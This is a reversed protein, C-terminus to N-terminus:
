GGLGLLQLKLLADAYQQAVQNRAAMYENEAMSRAAQQTSAGLGYFDARAADMVQALRTNFTGQAGALAEADANYAGVDGQLGSVDVGQARLDGEIPNAYASLGGVIQRGLQALQAQYARSQAANQDFATRVGGQYQSAYRDIAPLAAGRLASLEGFQRDRMATTERIAQERLARLQNIYNQYGSSGGGGGGGGGGVRFTPEGAGGGGGLLYGAAGAVLGAGSRVRSEPGGLIPVPKGFRAGGGGSRKKRKAKKYVAEEAWNKPVGPGRIPPPSQPM